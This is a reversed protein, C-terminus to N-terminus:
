VNKLPFYRFLAYQSIKSLCSFIVSPDPMEFGVAVRIVSNRHTSVSFSDKPGGKGMSNVRDSATSARDSSTSARGSSTARELLTERRTLALPTAVSPCQGGKTSAEEDKDAPTSPEEGIHGSLETRVGEVIVASLDGEAKESPESISKDEAVSKGSEDKSDVPTWGLDLLTQLGASDIKVLENQFLILM